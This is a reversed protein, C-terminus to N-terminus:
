FRKVDANKKEKELQTYDKRGKRATLFLLLPLAFSARV